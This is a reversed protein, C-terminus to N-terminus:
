WCQDKILPPRQDPAGNGQMWISCMCLFATRKTPQMSGSVENARHGVPVWNIPRPTAKHKKSALQSLLQVLSFKTQLINDTMLNWISNTAFLSKEM